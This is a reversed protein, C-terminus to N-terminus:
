VPTSKKSSVKGFLVDTFSPVQSKKKKKGSKTTTTEENAQTTDEISQESIDIDGTTSQDFTAQNTDSSANSNEPGPTKATTDLALDGSFPEDLADTLGADSVERSDEESAILSNKAKKSRKTKKDKPRDQDRSKLDPVQAEVIGAADSPTEIPLARDERLSEQSKDHEATSALDSTTMFASTAVERSVGSALGRARASRTFAREFPSSENGPQVGELFISDQPLSRTPDSPSLGPSHREDIASTVGAGTLAGLTLDRWKEREVNPSTPSISRSRSQVSRYQQDDPQTLHYGEMLSTDQPIDRSIGASVGDQDHLEEPDQLLESPSHFEYKPKDKKPMQPSEATPTAQGSDLYEPSRPKAEDHWYGWSQRRLEQPTPRDPSFYDDPTDERLNEISPHASTTRSSPLSPYVEEPEPSPQKAFSHREVLYLPRVEKSRIETSLPRNQRSRPTTSPSTPTDPSAASSSRVVIPIVPLRRFSRPLATPSGSLPGGSTDTTKLGSLRRLRTEQSISSRRPTEIARADAETGVVTELSLGAATAMAIEALRQGLREEETPEQEQARDEGNSTSALAKEALDRGHQSIVDESAAVTSPGQLQATTINLGSVGAADITSRETGTPMDPRTALFSSTDEQQTLTQDELTESTSDEMTKPAKVSSQSESRSRGGEKQSTSDTDRSKRRRIKTDDEDDAKSSKSKKSKTSTDSKVASFITGWLGTSPKKDQGKRSTGRDKVEATSSTISGRDTEDDNGVDNAIDRSRRESKISRDDDEREGSASNSAIPKSEDFSDGSSRRSRNKERRAESSRSKAAGTIAAAVAVGAADVAKSNRKSKSSRKSARSSKEWDEPDSSPQREGSASSKADWSAEDLTASRKVERFPEDERLSPESDGKSMNSLATRKQSRKKAMEAAEKAGLAARGLVSASPMADGQEKVLYDFVNFNKQEPSIQGKPLPQENDFSGPMSSTASKENSLGLDSTTEAFPSQYIQPVLPAKFTSPSMGYVDSTENATPMSKSQSSIFSEASPEVDSPQISVDRSQTGDGDFNSPLDGFDGGKSLHERQAVSMDEVPPISSNGDTTDPEITEVASLPSPVNFGPKEWDPTSREWEPTQVEYVYTDHDGWTVRNASASRSRKEPEIPADRVDEAPDEPMILPSRADKVSATRSPPPSPEMLKLLPVPWPYLKPDHDIDQGFKLYLFPNDIDKVKVGDPSVEVVQAKDQETEHDEAARANHDPLDRALEEPVFFKQYDEHVPSPAAKARNAAMRAIEEQNPEQQSRVEADENGASDRSKTYRGDEDRDDENSSPRSRRTTAAAVGMGAAVAIMAVPATGIRQKRTESQRRDEDYLMKLEREIEAERLARAEASSPKSRSTTPPMEKRGSQDDYPLRSPLAAPSSDRRRNLAPRDSKTSIRDGLDRVSSGPPSSRAQSHDFVTPGGPKASYTPSDYIRPSIPLIPQPQELPTYTTSAMYPETTRPSIGAVASSQSPGYTQGITALADMPRQSPFSNSQDEARRSSNTAPLNEQSSRRRQRGDKKNWRWDWKSTGDGYALGSKSVTEDDSADEWADDGASDTTEHDQLNIQNSRRSQRKRESGTPMDADRKGKKERRDHEAALAAGTAALGLLATTDAMKGQSSPQGRKSKRRVTGEGFALDADSSSSSANAFNFFGKSKKGKRKNDSPSTFFDGYRSSSTNTVSLDVYSHKPSVRRHYYDSKSSERRRRSSREPDPTSLANSGADDTSMRGSLVAGRSTTTFSDVRDTQMQDRSSRRQTRNRSNNFNEDDAYSRRDSSKEEDERFTVRAKSAPQGSKISYTDDFGYKNKYLAEGVTAIGAAAIGGAAVKRVSSKRKKDEDSSYRYAKDVRTSSGNRGGSSRRQHYFHRRPAEIPSSHPDFCYKCIGTAQSYEEFQAVDDHNQWWDVFKGLPGQSRHRHREPTSSPGSQSRGSNMYASEHSMSPTQANNDQDHSHYATAAIGAVGAAAALGYMPANSSSTNRPPRTPTGASQPQFPASSSNNSFPRVADYGTASTASQAGNGMSVSGTYYEAAEGVKIGMAASGVAAYHGNQSATPRVAAPLDPSGRSSTRANVDGIPALISGRSKQPTSNGVGGYFSAAAGTQGLSSPEPPPQSEITPEMLHAQDATQIIDPANPRVGPQYQVSEGHDGYYGTALGPPRYPQTFTDPFEGPFQNTVLSPNHGDYARVDRDPGRPKRRANENDDNDDNRARRSSSQSSNKKDRRDDDDYERTKGARSSDPDQEDARRSSKRRRESAEKNETPTRSDDDDGNRLRTQSPEDGSTRKSRKSRESM